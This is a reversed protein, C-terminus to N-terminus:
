LPSDFIIIPTFSQRVFTIVITTSSTNSSLERSLSTRSYFDTHMLFMPLIHLIWHTLRILQPSHYHHIKPSTILNLCPFHSNRLHVVFNKLYCKISIGNHWITNIVLALILHVLIYFGNPVFHWNLLNLIGHVSSPYRENNISFILTWKKSNLYFDPATSPRWQIPVTYSRGTICFGNSLM